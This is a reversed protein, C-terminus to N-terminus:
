GKLVRDPYPCGFVRAPADDCRHIDKIWASIAVEATGCATQEEQKEANTHTKAYRRLICLMEYEDGCAGKRHSAIGASGIFFRHM